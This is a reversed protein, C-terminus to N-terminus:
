QGRGVGGEMAGEFEALARRECGDLLGDVRGALAAVTQRHLKLKRAVAAISADRGCYRKLVLARVAGTDQAKLKVKGAALERATYVHIESIADMWAGNAVSGKCCPRHCNCEERQPMYKAKLIAAGPYTIHRLRSTIIGVQGAGELGTLGKSGAPANAILKALLPQTPPANYNFAFLLADTASRFLPVDDCM